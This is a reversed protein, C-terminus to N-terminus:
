SNGNEWGKRVQAWWENAKSAESAPVPRTRILMTDTDLSVEHTGVRHQTFRTKVLRLFRQGDKNRFIQIIKTPVQKNAGSGMITDIPDDFKGKNTHSVLIVTKGNGSKRSSRKVLNNLQRMFIRQRNFETEAKEVVSAEFIFQLPDIVVIDVGMDFLQEIQVAMQELTYGDSEPAIMINAELMKMIEDSSDFKSRKMGQAQYYFRAWLDAPDDELSYYAISKGQLAPGIVLQSAFTSKSVGTGGFIMLIEYGGETRGYGGGIYEDIISDGTSYANTLRPRGVTKEGAEHHQGLLTFAQNITPINKNAM